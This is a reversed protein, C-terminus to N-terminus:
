QIALVQIESLFPYLSHSSDGLKGFRSIMGEDWMMKVPASLLVIAM